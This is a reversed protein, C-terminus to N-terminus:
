KIIYVTYIETALASEYKQYTEERVRILGDTEKEGPLKFDQVVVAEMEPVRGGAGRM